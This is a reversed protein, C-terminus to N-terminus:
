ITLSISSERSPSCLDEVRDYAVAHTNYGISGVAATQASHLLPSLSVSEAASV